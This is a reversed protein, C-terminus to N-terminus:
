DSKSGFIYVRSAMALCFAAVGLIGVGAVKLTRMTRAWWRQADMKTIRSELQYANSLAGTSVEDTKDKSSTELGKVYKRVKQVCNVVERAWPLLENDGCGGEEELRCGFMSIRSELNQPQEGELRTILQELQTYTDSASATNSGIKGLSTSSM